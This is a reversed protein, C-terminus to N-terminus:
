NSSSAKRQEENMQYVFALVEAVAQYLEPPIAEDIDLKSLIQVLAPDNRIPIGHKVALAIIKEAVFGSGKAALKPARDKGADYTLAAAQKIQQGKKMAGDGAM